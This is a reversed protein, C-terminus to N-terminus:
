KWDVEQHFTDSIRIRGFGELQRKGIGQEELTYLKKHLKDRQAVPCKFLFVSGAEIAYENM